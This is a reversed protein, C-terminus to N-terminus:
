AGSQPLDGPLAGYIAEDVWLDRKRIRRRVAGERTMGVSEVLRIGRENEVFVEAEIKAFNLTDFGFHLLASLAESMIGQGWYRRGLWYGVDARGPVGLPSTGIAGMAEGATGTLTGSTDRIVWHFGFDQFSDTRCRDIWSETDSVADPGDWLLGATVEERDSGGTMGFLAPADAADPVEVQLRETKYSYTNLSSPDPGRRERGDDNASGM